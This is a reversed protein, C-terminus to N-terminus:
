ASVMQESSTALLQQIPLTLDTSRQGDPLVIYGFQEPGRAAYEMDRDSSTLTRELASLGLVAPERWTSELFSAFLPLRQKLVVAPREELPESGLEDWCSLLVCLRPSELLSTNIAGRIYLLM